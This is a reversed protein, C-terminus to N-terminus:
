RDAKLRALSRSFRVQGRWQRLRAYAQSAAVLSLGTRVTQTVGLGSARQARELLDVPVEVTIKRATEM